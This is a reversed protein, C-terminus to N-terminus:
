VGLLRMAEGDPQALEDSLGSWVLEGKRIINHRDGLKCLPKLSKDIVLITYHEEKLRRLAAWIERRISPALGETAEDLILFRPRTMLARGIALMQQEGGSLLNAYSRKREELRPFMEFIGQVAAARARSTEDRSTAILNETVTLTPFVQRGEPVVAVGMRAIQHPALGNIRRGNLVIDGTIRNTLGFITRVTTSKGMGNKGLLTSVAGSPLDLDLSFLVPSQGYAASVKDFILM